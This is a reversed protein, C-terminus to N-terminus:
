LLWELDDSMPDSKFGKTGPQANEFPVRQLTGPPANPHTNPVFEKVRSPTVDKVSGDPFQVRAGKEGGRTARTTVQAPGQVGNHGARTAASAGRAAHSCESAIATAFAGNEQRTERAQSALAGVRDPVSDFNARLATKSGLAHAGSALGFAAVLAFVLSHLLRHVVGSAIVRRTAPGWVGVGVDCANRV